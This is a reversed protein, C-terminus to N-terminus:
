TYKFCMSNLVRFIYILKSSVINMGSILGVEDNLRSILLRQWISTGELNLTPFNNCKESSQLVECVM